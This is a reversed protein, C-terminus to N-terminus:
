AGEENGQAEKQMQEMAITTIDDLGFRLRYYKKPIIGPIIIRGADQLEKNLKQVIRQSKSYQYGSLRMVDEISYYNEPTKM